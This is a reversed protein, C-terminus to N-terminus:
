YFSFTIKKFLILDSVIRTNITSNYNEEEEAKDEEVHENVYDLLTGSRFWWPLFHFNKIHNKDYVVLTNSGIENIKQAMIHLLIDIFSSYNDEDDDTILFLDSMINNTVSISSNYSIVQRCYDIIADYADM